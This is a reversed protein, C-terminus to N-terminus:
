ARHTATSGMPGDQKQGAVHQAKARTWAFRLASAMLGSWSMSSGRAREVKAEAIAASMIAARDYAGNVVLARAQVARRADLARARQMSAAFMANAAPTAARDRSLDRMATSWSISRRLTM